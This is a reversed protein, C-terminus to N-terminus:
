AGVDAPSPQETYQPKPQAESHIADVSSPM